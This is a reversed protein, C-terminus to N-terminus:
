FGASYPSDLEADWATQAEEDFSPEPSPGFSSGAFSSVAAPVKDWRLPHGHGGFADIKRLFAALAPHGVVVGHVTEPTPRTVDITTRPRPASWGTKAPDTVVGRKTGATACAAEIEARGCRATGAMVKWPRPLVAWIPTDDHLDGDTERHWAAVDAAMLRLVKGPLFADFLQEQGLSYVLAIWYDRAKNWAGALLNWTSSDNGRRVIMTTTNIDGALAVAELRGATENLIALTHELLEAREEISLRDLVDTRPFVHAISFWDTGGSAGQQGKVQAKDQRELAAFLIAAREDYAGAQAGNTFLSRRALNATLYAVFAASLPDRMFRDRPLDAAFATKAFRALRLLAGYEAREARLEEVHAVLRFVKDYHRRSVQVTLHEGRGKRDLRDTKFNTHGPTMGIRARAHALLADLAGPDRDFNLVADSAASGNARVADAGNTKGFTKSAKAIPFETITALVKAQRDLPAVSAFATPMSSGVGYGFLGAYGAYDDAVDDDDTDKAFLDAYAFGSGYKGYSRVQRHGRLGRGFLSRENATLQDRVLPVIRAAVDEPMERGSLGACLTELVAARRTTAKRTRGSDTDIGLTGAQVMTFGWHKRHFVGRGSKLLPVWESYLAM